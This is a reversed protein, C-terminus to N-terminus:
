MKFIRVAEEAEVVVEGLQVSEVDLDFDDPIAEHQTTSTSRQSQSEITSGRHRLLTETGRQDRLEQLEKSM